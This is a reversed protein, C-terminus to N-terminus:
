VTETATEVCHRRFARKLMDLEARLLDVESRLDDSLPAGAVIAFSTLTEGTATDTILFTQVGDSLCTAPIPVKIQWARNEIKSIELGALPQELHTVLVAPTEDGGTRLLGEWIGERLRTKSLSIESNIQAM